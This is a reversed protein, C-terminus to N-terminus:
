TTMDADPSGDYRTSREETVPPPSDYVRGSSSTADLTIRTLLV